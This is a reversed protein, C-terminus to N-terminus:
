AFERVGSGAPVPGRRFPVLSTLRYRGSLGRWMVTSGFPGRFHRAPHDALWHKRLMPILHHNLRRCGYREFAMVFSSLARIGAPGGPDFSSHLVSRDAAKLLRDLRGEAMLARKPMILNDRFRFREISAEAQVAHLPSGEPAAENVSDAFEWMQEHSGCWRDSVFQLYSVFGGYLPFRAAMQEMRYEYEHLSIQLGTGTELLGAWPIPSSPDLRAATTLLDEAVRLRRHFEDLRGDSVQEVPASSRAQWAQGVAHLGKVILPLPDQPRHAVWRDISVADAPVERALGLLHARREWDTHAAYNEAAADFRDALVDVWFRRVDPLRLNLERRDHFVKSM